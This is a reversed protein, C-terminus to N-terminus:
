ECNCGKQCEELTKFPVVGKCGGYIFSACKKEQKNYYYYTFAGKCPGAEPKLLCAEALEPTKEPPTVKNNCSILILLFIFVTLTLRITNYM